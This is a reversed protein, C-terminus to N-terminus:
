DLTIISFEQYIHTVEALQKSRSHIKKEHIQKRVLTQQQVSTTLDVGMYM